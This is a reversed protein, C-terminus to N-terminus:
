TAHVPPMLASEVAAAAAQGGRIAVGSSAQPWTLRM